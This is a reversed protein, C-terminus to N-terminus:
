WLELTPTRDRSELDLLWRKAALGGAYGTLRGDAGVVRHCPVVIGVPNRAMATGVTRAGTPGLGARVALEGYTITEGYGVALLAELIRRHEDTLRRLDPAVTFTRLTGALYATLEARALDLLDLAAPGAQAAPRRRAGFMVHTLGTDSAAVTLPGVPTELVEVADTRM